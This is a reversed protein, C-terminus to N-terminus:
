ENEGGGKSKLAGTTDSVFKSFISEKEKREKEALVDDLIMEIGAKIYPFMEKCTKEDLEHVGKSIIGYVNKKEVLLKPLYDKLVDIKEIFKKGMFTTKDVDIKKSVEDFKEFVLSEIIRRLYVFSGIGVGHSALGLSMNYECYNDKLVSKYKTTDGVCIDAFSPFQGIKIMKDNTILIDFLLSHNPDRSCRFSLSYRRNLYNNFLTVKAPKRSKNTPDLISTTLFASEEFVQKDTSEFIRKENCEICFCDIKYGNYSGSTLMRELEELDDVTVDIGDYLGKNVLIMEFKNMIERRQNGSTGENGKILRNGM